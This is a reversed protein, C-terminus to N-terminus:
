ISFLCLVNSLNSPSLVLATDRSVEWCNGHCICIGMICAFISTWRGVVRSHSWSRWLKRNQNRTADASAVKGRHSDESFYLPFFCSWCEGSSGETRMGGLVLKVVPHFFDKMWNIETDYLSIVCFSSYATVLLQIHKLWCRQWFRHMDFYM